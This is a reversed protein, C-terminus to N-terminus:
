HMLIFYPCLSIMQILVLSQIQKTKNKHKLTLAAGGGGM